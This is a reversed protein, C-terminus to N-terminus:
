ANQLEKLKYLAKIHAICDHNEVDLQALRAITVTGYEPHDVWEALRFNNVSVDRYWNCGASPCTYVRANDGETRAQILSDWSDM